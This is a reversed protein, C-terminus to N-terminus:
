LTKDRNDWKWVGVCWDSCAMGEEEVPENCAICTPQYCDECEWEYDGTEKLEDLDFVEECSCCREKGKCEPCKEQEEEILNQTLYEDDCIYCFSTIYPIESDTSPYAKMKKTNIKGLKGM